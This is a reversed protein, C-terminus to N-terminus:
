ASIKFRSLVCISCLKDGDVEYLEDSDIEEGCDACIFIEEEGGQCAM